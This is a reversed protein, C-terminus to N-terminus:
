SVASSDRRQRVALRWACVVGDVATRHRVEPEEVEPEAPETSAAPSALAGRLASARGGGEADVEDEDDAFDTHDGPDLTDVVESFTPTPTM